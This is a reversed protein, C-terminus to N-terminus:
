FAQRPNTAKRSESLLRATSDVVSRGGRAAPAPRTQSFHYGNAEAQGNLSVPIAGFHDGAKMLEAVEDRYSALSPRGHTGSM